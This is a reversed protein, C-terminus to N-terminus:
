TTEPANPDTDSLYNTNVYGFADEFYIKGWGDEYLEVIEVKDGPSLIGIQDYDASPGSRVNLSGTSWMTKIVAPALDTEYFPTSNFSNDEFKTDGEFTVSALASCRAFASEGINKVQAPIKISELGSCKYFAMMGIETIGTGLDVSVLETCSSFTSGLIGKVGNPIKISEIATESLSSSGLYTLTEPLEINKLAYCGSFAADGLHELGKGLNVTELKECTAFAGNGIKKMSDPLTLSILSQNDWMAYTNIETVPVNKIAAPVTLEKEYGLYATIMYTGDAKLKAEFDAVTVRCTASQGDRATAKINASGSGVAVIFGNDAVLVAAPNDTEWRVPRSSTIVYTDNSLLTIDSVSLTPAETSTDEVGYTVFGADVETGDTMTVILHGRGDIKTSLIGLGDKGNEGDKGDKGNEGKQGDLGNYGNKGDEGDKGDSGRLSDLWEQESGEFGNDVAIEYASKGNCAVLTLCLLAALLSILIKKM